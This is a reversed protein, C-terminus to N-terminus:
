TVDLCESIGSLVYPFRDTRKTSNRYNKFHPSSHEGRGHSRPHPHTRAGTLNYGWCTVSQGWPILSKPDSLDTVVTM